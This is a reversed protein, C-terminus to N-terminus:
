DARRGEFGVSAHSGNRGRLLRRGGPSDGNHDGGEGSGWDGGGYYRYYYNNYYYSASKSPDFNNYVAGVIRGGAHELQDRAHQIASRSSHGADMVFLTGDVLPAMISPDAVALVPPTDMVVFDASERLSQLVDVTRSSGLLGSPNAPVAGANLVRLNPIEPDEVIETFPFAGSLLESLGPGNPLHFFRHLRPRRLDASVLIVRRGAQALAVALNASTTTKGEGDMSSTVMIVKLEQQSAMYRITTAMTQYAESVPSKPDTQLILRAEETKRWTRIKPIVAIVPAGLRKELEQRTKVTDDLRERLFAFGVGLVLGAFVALVGDRVKNPSVPARPVEAQQVIEGAGQLASSNAQLDLLRQNLVGLQAILTDRQAKLNSQFPTDRTPVIKHNIRALTGRIGAIRDQVAGAAAEFATLAQQTRFDVYASAFANSLRAASVPNPDNYKVALLDTDGIVAVEVNSLLADGSIALSLDSKVKQAVTQSLVLERETDMNPAQNPALTGSASVPKVLVKTQGQYIPTQRFAFFMAAAAVAIVIVLVESKRARLVRVYERLDAVHETSGTSTTV